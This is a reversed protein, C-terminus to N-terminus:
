KISLTIKVEKEIIENEPYINIITLMYHKM